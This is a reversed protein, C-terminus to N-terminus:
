QTRIVIPKQLFFCFFFLIKDECHCISRINWINILFNNNFIRRVHIFTDAYTCWVIGIVFVKDIAAGLEAIKKQAVSLTLIFPRSRIIRSRSAFAHVRNFRWRSESCLLSVSLTFRSLSYHTTPGLTANMVSQYWWFLSTLLDKDCLTKAHVSYSAIHIKFCNVYCFFIFLYFEIIRKTLKTTATNIDKSPIEITEVYIGDNGVIRHVHTTRM